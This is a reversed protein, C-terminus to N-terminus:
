HLMEPELSRAGVARVSARLLSPGLHMAMTSIPFEALAHDEGLRLTAPASRHLEAM